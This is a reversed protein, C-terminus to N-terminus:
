AGFTRQWWGRRPTEGGDDTAAEAEADADAAEPAEEAPAPTPEAPAPAEITEAPAADTAAPKRTRRRKPKEEAAPAEAPVEPAAAETVADADVKKKRTRKPKAAPEDAAPEAAVPEPVVVPAIAEAVPAIVADTAPAAAGRARPRRRTKPAEVPAADEVTAPEPANLGTIVPGADGAEVLPELDAPPLDDDSATADAEAAPATDAGNDQRRGGRRGRRGRRRRAKARPVSAPM